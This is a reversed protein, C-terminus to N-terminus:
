NQPVVVTLCAIGELGHEQILKEIKVLVRRLRRASKVNVRQTTAKDM